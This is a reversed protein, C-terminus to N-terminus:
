YFVYIALNDSIDVVFWYVGFIVEMGFAVVGLVTYFGDRESKRLICVIIM